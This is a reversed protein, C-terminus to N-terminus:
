DIRPRTLVRWYVGTFIAFAVIWGMASLDIMEVYLSPNLPSLLQTFEARNPRAVNHM